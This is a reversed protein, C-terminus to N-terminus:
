SMKPKKGVLVDIYDIDDKVTLEKAFYVSSVYVRIRGDLVECGLYGEHGNLTNHIIRVEERRQADADVKKRGEEM